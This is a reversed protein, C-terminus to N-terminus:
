RPLGDEEALRGQDRETARVRHEDVDGLRRHLLIPPEGRPLHEVAEAKRLRRRPRQNHHSLEDAEQSRKAVGATQIGDRGPRQARQDRHPGRKRRGEEKDEQASGVDLVHAAVDHEGDRERRDGCGHDADDEIQRHPKSQVRQEAGDRLRAHQRHGHGHRAQGCKIEGGERQGNGREHRQPSETQPNDGDHQPARHPPEQPTEGPELDSGSGRSRRAASPAAAARRSATRCSATAPGNSWCPGVTTAGPTSTGGWADPCTGRTSTSSGRPKASAPRAGCHKRGRTTRLPSPTTMEPRPGPGPPAPPSLHHLALNILTRPTVETPQVGAAPDRLAQSTLWNHCFDCAYNCGLMGFTLTHSGPLVHTFPKKETPDCQLAAVYGWPVRLAGRENVRVKCIGRKEPFIVCRHGCAYCELKGDRLPRYLEGPVTLRDIINALSPAPRPEVRRM